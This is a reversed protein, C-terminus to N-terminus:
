LLRVHPIKKNNCSRWHSLEEGESEFGPPELELSSRNEMNIGQESHQKVALGLGRGIHCMDETYVDSVHFLSHLGLADRLEDDTSAHDHSLSSPPLSRVFEVRVKQCRSHDITWYFGLPKNSCVLGSLFLCRHVM